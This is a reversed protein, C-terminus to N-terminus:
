EVEKLFAIIADSFKPPDIMSSCILPMLPFGVLVFEIRGHKNLFGKWWAQEIAWEWIAGFHEWAIGLNDSHCGDLSFQIHKPIKM